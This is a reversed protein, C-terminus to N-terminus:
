SRTLMSHRVLTFDEHVKTQLELTPVLECQFAGLLTCLVPAALLPVGAGGALLTPLLLIFNNDDVIPGAIIPSSIIPSSIILSSIIPGAVIPGAVIPSHSAQGQQVLILTSSM